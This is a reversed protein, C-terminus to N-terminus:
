AATPSALSKKLLAQVETDSVARFERYWQGVAHFNVPVALCVLEDVEGRIGSCAERAGVPVAVTVNAPHLSRVYRIAALMTSGTALGDDVIIVSRAHLELAPRWARYLDERRKMEVQEKAVTEEVDEAYIGLHRILGHDLIRVSGAMAGMALEPQWPVGIKRVVIVDLPLRLRAAIPFGTPVGGRTLGLVIGSPPVKRESLAEALLRGAELRNEFPLHVM